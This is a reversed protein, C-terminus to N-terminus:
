RWLEARRTSSEVTAVSPLKEAHRGVLSPALGPLWIGQPVAEEIEPIGLRDWLALVDARDDIAARVAYRRTLEDWIEAKVAPDPRADGNRRHWPGLFPVPLHERLWAVTADRWRNERATVVLITRGAAHHRRCFAVGQTIPQGFSDILTGDVDVIVAEALTVVM